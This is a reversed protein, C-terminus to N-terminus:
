RLYQRRRYSLKLTLFCQLKNKKIDHCLINIIYESHICLGYILLLNFIVSLIVISFQTFVYTTINYQCQVCRSCLKMIAANFINLSSINIQFIQLKLMSYHYHIFSKNRLIIPNSLTKNM